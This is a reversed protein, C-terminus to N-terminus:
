VVKGRRETSDSLSQGGIENLYENVGNQIHQYYELRDIRSDSEPKEFVTFLRRFLKSVDANRGSVMFGPERSAYYRYNKYLLSIRKIYNDMLQEYSIDGQQYLELIGNILEETHYLYLEKEEPNNVRAERETQAIFEPQTYFDSDLSIPFSSHEFDRFNALSCMMKLSETLRQCTEPQMIREKNKVIYDNVIPNSAGSFRGEPDFSYNHISSIQDIPRREEESLSSYYGIDSKILNACLYNIAHSSIRNFWYNYTAGQRSTTIAYYSCNLGTAIPTGIDSVLEPNERKIEELVRVTEEFYEDFCYICTRDKEDGTHEEGKMEYPISKEICRRIFAELFEFRNKGNPTNIYIRYDADKKHPRDNGYPIAEIKGIRDEKLRSNAILMNLFSKKDNEDYRKIEQIIEEESLVFIQTFQEYSFNNKYANPLSDYLNRNGSLTRIKKMKDILLMVIRFTYKELEEATLSTSSDNPKRYGSLEVKRTNYGRKEVVSSIYEDILCQSGELSIIPVNGNNVISERITNM